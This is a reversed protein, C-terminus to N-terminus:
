GSQSPSWWAVITYKTELGLGMALGLPVWLRPDHTRLLRVMLYIAVAWILQDVAVPQFLWDTTMMGSFVVAFAALAQAGRDGGLERAILGALVVIATGALVPVLRLTVLHTGFITTDLRAVM